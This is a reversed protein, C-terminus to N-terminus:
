NTLKRFSSTADLVYYHNDVVESFPNFYFCEREDHGRLYWPTWRCSCQRDTRLGGCGQTLHHLMTQSRHIWPTKRHGGSWSLRRTPWVAEPRHALWLQSCSLWAYGSSLAWFGLFFTPLHDGLPTRPRCSWRWIFSQLFVMREPRRIRLWPGLRAQHLTGLSPCSRGLAFIIKCFHSISKKSSFHRSECSRTVVYWRRMAQYKLEFTFVLLNWSPSRMRLLNRCLFNPLDM